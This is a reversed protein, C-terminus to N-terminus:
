LHFDHLHVPKFVVLPFLVGNLLINSPTTSIGDLPTPTVIVVHWSIHIEKVVLPVRLTVVEGLSFPFSERGSVAALSGLALALVAADDVVFTTDFASAPFAVAFLSTPFTTAM